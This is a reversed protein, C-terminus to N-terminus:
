QQLTSHNLPPAAPHLLEPAGQSLLCPNTCPAADAPNPACIHRQAAKCCARRRVHPLVHVSHEVAAARLVGPADRNNARQLADTQSTLDNCPYRLIRMM